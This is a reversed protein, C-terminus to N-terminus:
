STFSMKDGEIQLDQYCAGEDETEANGQRYQQMLHKYAEKRM